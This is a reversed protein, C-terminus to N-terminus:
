EDLEGFRINMTTSAAVPLGDAAKAPEFRYTKATARATESCDERSAKLVRVREVSGDEAVKLSVIVEEGACHEAGELSPSAREAQLIRPAHVPRRVIPVPPPPAPPPPTVTPPAVPPATRPPAAPPLSSAQGVQEQEPPSTAGAGELPTSGEAQSTDEPQVPAQAAVSSEASPTREISPSPEGLTDAPSRGADSGIRPDKSPDDVGQPSQGAAQEVVAPPPVPTAGPGLIGFRRGVLLLVITLCAVLAIRALRNRDWGRDMEVTPAYIDAPAPTGKAGDVVGGEVSAEVAKKPEEVTSPLDEIEEIRPAVAMPTWDQVDSEGSQYDVLAQRMAGADAYRAEPERALSRMVIAELEPSLDFCRVHLPEPDEHIRKVITQLPDEARFPPQGSLMEYMAAALSYLDARGDITQGQIQEPSIYAPTGLISGTMTQLASQTSKAIGFDMIYPRGRADLLVNSPKVDRHITGLRHSYDLADLLPVALKAVAAPALRGKVSLEARLTPGAVYQMSFWVIGEIEGFDYVKVISPHDLSAVLKAENIFRRIFNPDDDYAESLVKLAELRDLRLNRVLFVTAFAGRGLVGEFTYREGLKDQLHRIRYNAM